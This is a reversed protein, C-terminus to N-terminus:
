VQPASEFWKPQWSSRFESRREGGIAILTTGAAKAHGARVVSPDPIAVVTTAPADVHEGGITFTAEGSTVIYLEEQGSASEDHAAVLEAGQHEAVYVNVGFATFRFYHQLPFWAPDGEATDITPVDELRRVAFRAM